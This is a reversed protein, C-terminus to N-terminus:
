DEEVKGRPAAELLYLSGSEPGVPNWGSDGANRCGLGVYFRGDLIELSYPLGPLVVEAALTWTALDPSSHVSARYEEADDRARTATLVHLIGDRVLVDRVRAEAFAPVPEASGGDKADSAALRFLCGPLRLGPLDVFAYVVGGGFAVWRLTGGLDEFGPHLDVACPESKEGDCRLAGGPALVLFSDAFPLFPGGTELYPEWSKGQDASRMVRTPVEESETTFWVYWCKRFCCVDLVHLAGPITRREKWGHGSRRRPDKVYLNGFAWSEKPDASPVVLLGDLERFVEVQEDPALYEGEFGGKGYSWIQVPGKNNWLDGGGLYIRGHFAHLDWVSRALANV